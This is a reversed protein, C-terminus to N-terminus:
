KENYYDGYEVLITNVGDERDYAKKYAPFIQEPNELKIIEITTCMQKVAETFDGVHQFQPHLPRQSGIGTRIIIKPVIENGCMVKFKDVHNILQNIGYLLFNWRPYISIPVNKDMALGLTMGMQMDEAVPLELLKKKDINKLTNSMATGPVEVAQGIFLTDKKSGLYEMSKKLEDFYKMNFINRQRISLESLIQHFKLSLNDADFFTDAFLKKSYNEDKSDLEIKKMKSEKNLFRISENYAIRYIWTSIKSKEKFNDIGKFIRIYTDQLVDNTSDHSLVMKRIMWYIKEQYLDVLLKFGKDKSAPNKLLKLLAGEKM